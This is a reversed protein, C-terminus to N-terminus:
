KRLLKFLFNPIFTARINYKKYRMQKYYSNYNHKIYSSIVYCVKFNFFKYNYHYHLNLHQLFVSQLQSNTFTTKTNYNLDCNGTVLNLKKLEQAYILGNNLSSFLQYVVIAWDNLFKFDNNSKSNSHIRYHSLLNNIRKIKGNNLITKVVLEFDMAYHLSNNLPTIKALMIKSFFSSSQPFRMCALYEYPEIDGELGIIKNKISSGFLLAKGHVMAITSDKIFVDAITQLTTPEYYDDSNLWTVIDGTVVKLGKNIADSQGNDKESIWYAIKSQYKKIINM